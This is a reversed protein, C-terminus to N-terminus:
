EFDIRVACSRKFAPLKVKPSLELDSAGGGNWLDYARVRAIKRGRAFDSFDVTEGSIERPKQGKEFESKWDNEVDRAFALLTKEGSLAYVRANKTDCRAPKFSEGAPNVGEVLSAFPKLHRWLKHKYIYVDWHWPQGSGAAGAFFPVYFADHFIAGDKDAGYFRWAGSHKPQVAGTEALLAPRGGCIKSIECIADAAAIDLPGKCIEYEAGEDLYRHIAAIENATGKYFREYAARAGRGDFSGCSNVVLQKKCVGSIRAFMEEQWRKVNEGNANVTNQENWLEWAFVTPDNGYRDFLIKFRNFYFDKGKQSSFYEDMSKFEGDYAPRSFVNSNLGRENEAPKYDKINRFHELCIKVRIGYKKALGMFRDLRALKQPNYAGARSDEIEYFPHSAWIRVYNGGNEAINKMHTEIMAFCEEVSLKSWYRPFCLNYGIPIYASGDSLAFYRPNEKSVEVFGGERSPNLSNCGTAAALALAALTSPIFNKM